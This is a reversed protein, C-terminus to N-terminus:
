LTGGCATCMKEDVNNLTGCYRCRVKIVEEVVRREIQQPQPQIPEAQEGVKQAKMWLAVLVLILGFVLLLGGMASSMGRVDDFFPDQDMTAAFVFSMIGGFTMLIGFM